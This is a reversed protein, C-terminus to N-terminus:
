ITGTKARFEPSQSLHAILRGAIVPRPILPADKLLGYWYTYGANDAERDLVLEYAWLIYLEVGIDHFDDQDLARPAFEDSAAFSESITVLPVGDVRLNIWHAFGQPDIPRDFYAFYLRDIAGVLRHTSSDLPRWRLTPDGPAKACLVGSVAAPSTDTRGVIGAESTACPAEAIVVPANQPPDIPRAEAVSSSLVGIM